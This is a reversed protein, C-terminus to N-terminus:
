MSTKKFWTKFDKTIAPVFNVPKGGTRCLELFFACDPLSLLTSVTSPYKAIFPSLTGRPNSKLESQDFLAGSSERRSREETRTILKKVRSFYTGHVWCQSKGEM